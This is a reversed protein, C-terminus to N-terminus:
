FEKWRLIGRVRGDAVSTPNEHCRRENGGAFEDITERRLMKAEGCTGTGKQLLNMGGPGDKEAGPRRLREAIVDSPAVM